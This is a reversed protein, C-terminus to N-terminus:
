YPVRAADAHFVPARGNSYWLLTDHKRGYRRTSGGGSRYSWIIENQFHDAGFIADCRVKLYHIARYDLHLFFSGEPALVERMAAIREGIYDTYAGIDNRWLDSFGGGGGRPTQRKGTFFPPDVIILNFTSRPLSRAAELADRQELTWDRTFSVQAFLDPTTM